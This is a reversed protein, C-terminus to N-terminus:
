VVRAAVAAGKVAVSGGEPRAAGTSVDLWLAVMGGPASVLSSLGGNGAGDWAAEGTSTTRQARPLRGCAWPRRLVLPWVRPRRPSEVTMSLACGGRGCTAAVGDIGGIGDDSWTGAELEMAHFKSKTGVPLATTVGAGLIVGDGMAFRDETRPALAPAVEIVAVGKSDGGDGTAADAAPLVCWWTRRCM